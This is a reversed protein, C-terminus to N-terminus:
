QKEKRRKVRKVYIATAATAVLITSALGIYPALLGFKDVPISIGGVTRAFYVAGWGELNIINSIFDVTGGYSIWYSIPNQQCYLNNVYVGEEYMGMEGSTVNLFGYSKPSTTAVNPGTWGKGPIYFETYEMIWQTINFLVINPQATYNFFIEGYGHQFDLSVTGGGLYDPLILDLSHNIMNEKTLEFTVSGPITLEALSFPMVFSMNQGKVKKVWTKGADKSIYGDKQGKDDETQVHWHEIPAYPIKITKTEGPELTEELRIGEEPRWTTGGSRYQALVSVKRKDNKNNNRVDVEIYGGSVRPPPVISVDAQVCEILLSMIVLVLISAILMITKKTKRDSGKEQYYTM